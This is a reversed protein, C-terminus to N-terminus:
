RFNYEINILVNHLPKEFVDIQVVKRIYKNEERKIYRVAASQIVSGGLRGGITHENGVFLDFRCVGREYDSKYDREAIALCGYYDNMFFYHSGTFIVNVVCGSIKTQKIEM